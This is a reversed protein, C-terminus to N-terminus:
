QIGEEERVWVAFTHENGLYLLEEGEHMVVWFREIEEDGLKEEDPVVVLSYQALLAAIDHEGKIAGSEVITVIIAGELGCSEGGPSPNAGNSACRECGGYIM